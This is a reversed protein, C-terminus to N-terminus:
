LTLLSMQLNLYHNCGVRVYSTRVYPLFTKAFEQLALNVSLDWYRCIIIKYFMADDFLLCLHSKVDCSMAGHSNQIINVCIDPSRGLRCKNSTVMVKHRKYIIVRPSTLYIGHLVFPFDQLQKHLPLLVHLLIRSSFDLYKM